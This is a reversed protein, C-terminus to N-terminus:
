SKGLAEKAFFVLDIQTRDQVVQGIQPGPRLGDIRGSLAVGNNRILFQSLSWTPEPTGREDPRSIAVSRSQGPLLNMLPYEVDGVHVRANLLPYTSANRVTCQWRGSQTPKVDIAFWDGVPFRQRYTMRRFALNNARMAPVLIEGTDVPDFQATDERGPYGRYEEQVVGLSEVNSLKLDYVGSRPVFLQSSGIFMGDRMAEQGVVLGVSATSMKASYLGQASTFLVGAFGLSVIPATFWALEGRRLKRLVFFNLPVVVLFYAGLITLVRDAPPLTTSFPDEQSPLSPITSMGPPPMGASRRIVFGAGYSSSYPDVPGEQSYALLFNRARQPDTPRLLRFVANGRGSWGTLPSELPNFAVYVAKGLGVGREATVLVGRDMRTIAGPVPKGSLVTVDPAPAGGLRELVPSDTLTRPEVSQVPLVDRWRPDGLVPASAGGLFLLTGGTMAWMRLASVEDDTLREAGSGLAVASLGAYGLARTPALGPRCYADQIGQQQRGNRGSAVNSRMFALEGANDSLLLVNAIGQTFGGPPEYARIVRGQDTLLMYQAGGYGLTPYTILRKSSGRPLEVPYDMQFDGTTVRVVGRADPGDNRLEAAVPVTGYSPAFGEFAPSIDLSLPDAAFSSGALLACAVAIPLRFRNNM